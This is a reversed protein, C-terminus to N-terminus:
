CSCRSTSCTSNEGCPKRHRAGRRNRHHHAVLIQIAAPETVTPLAKWWIAKLTAFFERLALPRFLERRDSVFLWLLAANVFYAIATAIAVGMAVAAESSGFLALEVVVVNLLVNVMVAIVAAMMQPRANNAALNLSAFTYKLSLFVLGPAISMM